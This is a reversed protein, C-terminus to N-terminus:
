IREADFRMTWGLADTATLYKVSLAVTSFSTAVASARQRERSLM